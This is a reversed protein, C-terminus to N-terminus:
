LSWRSVECPVIAIVARMNARVEGIKDLVTKDTPGGSAIEGLGRTTGWLRVVSAKTIICWDGNTVVDGVWVHGRDAIVLAIGHERRERAQVPNVLSLLERLEIQM